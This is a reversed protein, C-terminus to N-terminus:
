KFICFFTFKRLFFFSLFFSNTKRKLFHTLPPPELVIYKMLFYIFFFYYNNCCQQLIDLLQRCLAKSDLLPGFEILFSEQNARLALQLRWRFALSCETPNPKASPQLALPWRIHPTAFALPLWTMLTLIYPPITYLKM